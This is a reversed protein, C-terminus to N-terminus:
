GLLKSLAVGKRRAEGNIATLVAQGSVNPANVTIYTNGATSM